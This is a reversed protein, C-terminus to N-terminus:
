AISMSSFQIRMQHSSHMFRTLFAQEDRANGYMGMILQAIERIDSKKCTLCPSGQEDSITDSAGEDSSDPITSHKRPRGRNSGAKSGGRGRKHGDRAVM